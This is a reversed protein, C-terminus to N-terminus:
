GPNRYENAIMVAVEALDVLPALAIHEALTHENTAGTSVTFVRLRDRLANADSGVFTPMTRFPQGRAEWAQRFLQVLPEQVDVQYAAGHPDFTIEATGGLSQAAATFAARIRAQWAAQGDADLLTRLEGQVTLAAPIANRASGGTIMGLSLRTAEDDLIGSPLDLHRFMEIASATGALDKGPHGSTGRLVADFALYAAGQTVVAGADGANDFVIGERIGWPSPDFGRAGLLGVEEGVTFLLVLPGHPLQRKILAEVALLIITIGAADDAGLNTHSDGHMVGDRVTPQCALGPPVRDMHANYLLPSLQERGATAPITVILNGSADTTITGAPHDLRQALYARVQEEHGSQSPIGVLARMTATVQRLTIATM